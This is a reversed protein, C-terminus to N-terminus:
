SAARLPAAQELPPAPTSLRASTAYSADILVEGVQARAAFPKVMGAFLAPFKEELVQLVDQASSETPFEWFEALTNLEGTIAQYLGLNKWGEQQLAPFCAGIGFLYAGLDKMQFQREVHYYQKSAAPAPTVQSFKVRTRLNQVEQVVLENIDSYLPDDACCVMLRALDLSQLDPLRFVNVYRHAQKNARLRSETRFRLNPAPAADNGDFDFPQATRLGLLLQADCEPALRSFGGHDLFEGVLGEFQAAKGAPVVIEAQLIYEAITM